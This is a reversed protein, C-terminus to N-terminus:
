MDVVMDVMDEVSSHIDAAVAVTEVEAVVVTEEEAAVATEVEWKDALLNQIWNDVAKPGALLEMAVLVPVLKHDVAESRLEM